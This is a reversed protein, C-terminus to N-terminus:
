AILRGGRQRLRCRGEVNSRRPVARGPARPVRPQALVLAGPPRCARAPARKRQLYSASMAAAEDNGLDLLQLLEIVESPAAALVSLIRFLCLIGAAQAVLEDRGLGQLESVEALEVLTEPTIVWLMEPPMALLEELAWLPVKASRLMRLRHPHGHSRAVQDLELDNVTDADRWLEEVPHLAYSALLCSAQPNTDALAKADMALRVIHAAMPTGSVRSAVTHLLSAVGQSGRVALPHGDLAGDVGYRLAVLGRSIADSDSKSVAVMLHKAQEVSLYRSIRGERM